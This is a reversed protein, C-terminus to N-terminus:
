VNDYSGPLAGCLEIVQKEAIAPPQLLKVPLGSRLMDRKLTEISGSETVLPSIVGSQDIAGNRLPMLVEPSMIKLLTKTEEFGNVLPFAGILIETAPSIVIDVEKERALASADFSCHPEYYCSVGQRGQERVIFGNERQSWPPGVLAGSTATISLNGILRTQGPWMEIVSKFGLDRAVKAATPSAVVTLEKPLLELTPPHAHDELGQSLLIVDTGEAAAVGLRTTDKKGEYLLPLGFFTLSDVLWPDCLVTTGTTEFTMKWSNGGLNQYTVRRKPESPLPQPDKAVASASAHMAV